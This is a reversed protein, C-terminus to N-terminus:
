IAILPLRRWHQREDLVRIKREQRRKDDIPDHGEEEVTDVLGVEEGAVAYM